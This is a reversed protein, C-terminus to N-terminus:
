NRQAYILEFLKDLKQKVEQMDERLPGINDEMTQRVQADTVKNEMKHELDAIRSVFDRMVYTGIGVIIPGIIYLAATILTPNM